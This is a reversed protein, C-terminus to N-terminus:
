YLVTSNEYLKRARNLNNKSPLVPNGFCNLYFYDMEPIVVNLVHITKNQFITKYYFDFELQILKKRIINVQENLNISINPKIDLNNFSTYQKNKYEQIAFIFSKYLRTDQEEMVNKQKLYEDLYHYTDKFVAVAQVLENVARRFAYDAFLSTGCGFVPYDTYELSNPYALYTPVGIDSTINVVHIECGIIKEADFIKKLLTTPLSEREVLRIGFDLQLYYLAILFLSLADREIKENIAHILAENRNCGIASGNNSSYRQLSTYKVKDEKHPNDIYDHFNIFTPYMIDKEELIDTYKSCLVPSDPFIQKLLYVPLDNNGSSISATSLIYSENLIYRESKHYFHELCEYIAGVLAEINSDGKGTGKSILNYDMIDLFECSVVNPYTTDFTTQLILDMGEIHTLAQDLAVFLNSEREPSSLSHAM